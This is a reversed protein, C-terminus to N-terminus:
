ARLKEAKLKEARLKKARLIKWDKNWLSLSSHLKDKMSLNSWHLKQKSMTKM